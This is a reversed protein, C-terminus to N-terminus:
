PWSGLPGDPGSPGLCAGSLGQFPYPTIDGQMTVWRTEAFAELNATGGFRTGTGSDLVVGFPVTPEDVTQDNIHVIGSPIRRALDLGRM